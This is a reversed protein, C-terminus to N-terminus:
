LSAPIGAGEKIGEANEMGESFQIPEVPYLYTNLNKM